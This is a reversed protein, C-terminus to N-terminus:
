RRIHIINIKLHFNRLRGASPSILYNIYQVHVDCHQTAQLIQIEFYIRSLLGLITM